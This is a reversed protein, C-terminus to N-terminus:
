EKRSFFSYIPLRGAVAGCLFGGVHAANDVVPSLLGTVITFLAWAVVAVTVRKERLYFHDQHLHLLVAVTAMLGFIAGSAGVSPGETIAMSALAGSIGAALYLALMLVPGVAHECAVGLVYLAFMNGILHDESGHLFMPTLLRWLEGQLVLDRSLAGAAIISEKSALAGTASEWGFVVLNIGILLLTMPPAYSMGSEFDIRDDTRPESRVLMDDTILIPEEDAM